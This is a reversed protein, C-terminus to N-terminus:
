PCSPSMLTSYSKGSNTIMLLVVRRLFSSKAESWILLKLQRLLFILIGSFTKWTNSIDGFRRPDSFIVANESLEWHIDLKSKFIGIATNDAVLIDTHYFSRFFNELLLKTICLVMSTKLETLVCLPLTLGFPRHNM